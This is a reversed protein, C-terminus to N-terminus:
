SQSTGPGHSVALQHLKRRSTLTDLMSGRFEAIGHHSLTSEIDCWIEGGCGERWRHCFALDEAVFKRNEDILPDFFGYWNRIVDPWDYGGDPRYHLDPFRQIIRELADRRILFLRAGAGRVSIFGEVIRPLEGSGDVASSDLNVAFESLMRKMHTMDRPVFGFPKHNRYGKKPYAACTVPENFKLMRLVTTPSFQIDSDVFLLHTLSKNSLFMAAAANRVRQIVADGPLFRVSCGLRQSRALDMLKYLSEATSTHVRHDYSPVFVAINPKRM